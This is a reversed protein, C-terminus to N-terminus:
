PGQRSGARAPGVAPAASSRWGADRAPPSACGAGAGGRAGALLRTQGDDGEDAVRVRSLARKQIRKRARTHEYLVLEEGGQVGGRPPQLQGPSPLRQQGVGDTEDPLEGVVENGREPRGELADLLRREDHM